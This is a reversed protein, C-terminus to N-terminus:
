ESGDVAADDADYYHDAAQAAAEAETYSVSRPGGTAAADPEVLKSDVMRGNLISFSGSQRRGAPAPMQHTARGNAPAGQAVASAAPLRPNEVLEWTYLGDPLMFGGRDVPAFSPTQGVAFSQQWRYGNGVVTLALADGSSPRFAIEGGRVEMAALDAGPAARAGLALVVVLSLLVLPALRATGTICRGKM